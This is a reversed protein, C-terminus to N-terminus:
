RLIARVAVAEHDSPYIGDPRDCCVEYQLVDIGDSVFLYDIRKIHKEDYGNDTWYTGM